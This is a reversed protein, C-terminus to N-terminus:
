IADRGALNRVFLVMKSKIFQPAARTGKVKTKFEEMPMAICDGLFAPDDYNAVFATRAEEESNFGLMAKQEDPEKFEPPTMATIVYAHSAAANPGIFCDFHDGDVGLTGRIYGYHHQMGTQWAKGDPGVGSRMTGRPNEVSVPLGQFDLKAMKYNGARLQAKSPGNFFPLHHAKLLILM